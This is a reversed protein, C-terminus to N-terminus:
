TWSEPLFTHLLRAAGMVQQLLSKCGASGEADGLAHRQKKAVPKAAPGPRKGNKSKAKIVGDLEKMVEAHLPGDLLFGNTIFPQLKTIELSAVDGGKVEDWMKALAHKGYLVEPAEASGSGRGNSWQVLYPLRTHVLKSFDDASGDLHPAKGVQLQTLVELPQESPGRRWM